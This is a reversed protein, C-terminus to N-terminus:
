TGSCVACLSIKWSGTALPGMTMSPPALLMQALGYLGGDGDSFFVDVLTDVMLRLMYCLTFLMGYRRRADTLLTSLVPHM